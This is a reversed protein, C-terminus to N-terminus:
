KQKKIAKCVDFVASQLNEVMFANSKTHYLVDGTLSFLTGSYEDHEQVDAKFAHEAPRFEVLYDAKTPDNTLTAVGRCYRKNNLASIIDGTAAQSNPTLAIRKESSQAVACTTLSVLVLVITKM